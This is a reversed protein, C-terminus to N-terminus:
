SLNDPLPLFEWLKPLPQSLPILPGSPKWAIPEEISTGSLLRGWLKELDQSTARGLARWHYGLSEPLNTLDLSTAGQRIKREFQEFSRWPRHLIATQTNDIKGPGILSHNGMALVFPRNPKFCIKAERHPVPDVTWTGDPQPFQNYIPTELIPNKTRALINALSKNTGFWFEDADFPVIWTAGQEKARDALWTMKESQYYAPENDQGLSLPYDQALRSLIEQTGDTSGNDVILIHDIGQEFLHKVTQEIIDAENKIMAVGWIGQVRPLYPLEFTNNLSAYRGSFELSQRIERAKKISKLQQNALYIQHKFLRLKQILGM